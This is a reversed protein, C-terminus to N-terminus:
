EGPQDCVTAREGVQGRQEGRPVHGQGIAPPHTRGSRGERRDQDDMGVGM